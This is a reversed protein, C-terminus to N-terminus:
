LLTPTYSLHRLWVCAGAGGWFWPEPLGANVTSYSCYFDDGLVFFHVKKTFDDYCEELDNYKLNNSFHHIGINFKEVPKVKVEMQPGSHYTKESQKYRFYIFSYAGLTNKKLHTSKPLKKLYTNLKFTM